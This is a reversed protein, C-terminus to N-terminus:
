TEGTTSEAHTRGFRRPFMGSPPTRPTRLALERDRLRAAAKGLPMVAFGSALRALTQQLQDLKAQWPRAMGPFFSLAPADRGDILDTPHLLFSPAVGRVKLAALGASFYGNAIPASVAGVVNLYSMHMPTRLFPITSVPLELLTSGDIRWRFPALPLTANAAPGFLDSGHDRPGSHAYLRSRYYARLLPSLYTPLVSADYTYGLKHLAQLLSASTGFSPCRFGLPPRGAAATIAAATRELDEAIDHPALIPLDGRHLFSHSAVEHGAQVLMQVVEAGAPREADRGVVFVTIRLQLHDLLPLLRSVALALVSPARAWEMDGKTRLYAWVDDLDLSLTALRREEHAATM